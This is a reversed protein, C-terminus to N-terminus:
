LKIDNFILKKVFKNLKNNLKINTINNKILIIFLLIDRPTRITYMYTNKCDGKEIVGKKNDNYINNFIKQIFLLHFINKSYIRIYNKKYEWKHNYFIINSGNIFGLFWFINNSM